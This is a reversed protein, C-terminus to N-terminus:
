PLNGPKSHKTVKRHSIINNIITETSFNREIPKFFM